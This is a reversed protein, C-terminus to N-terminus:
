KHEATILSPYTMLCEEQPEQLSKGYGTEKKRENQKERRIPRLLKVADSMCKNTRIVFFVADAILIGM